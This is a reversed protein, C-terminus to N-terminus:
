VFEIIEWSFRMYYLSRNSGTTSAAMNIQISAGDDAISIQLGSYNNSEEIGTTANSVIRQVYYHVYLTNIMAKSADVSNELGINAPLTSTGSVFSHGRQISEIVGADRWGDYGLVKGTGGNAGLRAHNFVGETIKSANLGPIRAAVLTGATIKSANLGPIRAAVLTGATIKSANLGPIRAAVLTGATIKSANLGPIRDTSLTGETIKSANLNPIRAAVLTGATIKSANLSPIRDAGLTGATIKSANLSPIRAPAFVGDQQLVAIDGSSTGSALTAVTGLGLNTRAASITTAGTGGKLTSTTPLRATSITGTTIKAADLNPIHATTIKNNVYTALRIFSLWRNPDGSVSEDSTVLRDADALVTMETGVNDHLDFATAAVGAADDRWGPTGSNSTKWVKNNGPNIAPIRGREATTKNNVYTALRIFSLWRNPDGSVSEDSAVLRDADAPATMETGVNDHLDFIANVISAVSSAAAAASSAAASASSLAEAASDSSESASSASGSASSASGSASSAAASASSLAAAASSLAEAASVLAEAASSASGSASSAAAAASSAAATASSAAATASSASGSASSLAEAASSLAEAASSLAEAASSQAADRAAEAARLIGIPLSLLQWRAAVGGGDAGGENYQLYHLAGPIFDGAALSSGDQRLIQVATTADVSLTSPGTNGLNEPIVCTVADGHVLRTRTNPMAATYVNIAGSLEGAFWAAGSTFDRTDEPLPDFAQQVLEFARNVESSRARAGSILKQTHTFYPNAM